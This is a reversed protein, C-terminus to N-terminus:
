TSLVTKVASRYRNIVTDLIRLPSFPLLLISDNVVKVLSFLHFYIFISAFDIPQCPFLFPKDQVKSFSIFFLTISYYIQM